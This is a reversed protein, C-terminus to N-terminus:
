PAPASTRKALALGFRGKSDTWWESLTLGASGLEAEVQTRTFKCSWETHITEGSELYVDLDIAELRAAVSRSARLSQEMCGTENVLRTEHEFDDLDFDGGLERNIVTLINKNFQASIGTADDYAASLVSADKILDVGLLFGDENDMMSTVAKYFGTRLHPALNGITSGLFAILRRGHRPVADLDAGFDGLYGRVKLWPY